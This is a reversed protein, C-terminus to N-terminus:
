LRQFDAHKSEGQNNLEALISKRLDSLNKFKHLFANRYTRYFISDIYFDEKLFDLFKEEDKSKFLNKVVLFKEMYLLLAAVAFITRNEDVTTHQPDYFGICGAIIDPPNWEGLIKCYEFDILNIEGADSIIINSFSIDVYIIGVQLLAELRDILKEVIQVKSEINLSINKQMFDLLNEGNIQQIELFYHDEVYFEYLLDPTFKLDATKMLVRKEIVLRDLSDTGYIDINSLYTAEKLFVVERIKTDFAKLVTNKGSQKVVELIILHKPISTYRNVYYDSVPVIVNEPITKDRNDIFPNRISDVIIDGYRYYVIKSQMFRFDSPISISDQHKFLLELDYLLKVLIKNNYPYITVFKGIQSFGNFGINQRELDRFSKLVKWEVDTQKIYNYFLKFVISLNGITASLHIKFGQRPLRNNSKRLKFLTWYENEEIYYDINKKANDLLRKYEIQLNRKDSNYNM